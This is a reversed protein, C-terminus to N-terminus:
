EARSTPWNPAGDSMVRVVLSTWCIWISTTIATVIIIVAGSFRTIPMKKATRSVEPQRHDDHEGDGCRHEREARDHVPHHRRELRHLHADVADIEHQALLDRAHPHHPREHAFRLLGGAERLGVVFEGLGSEPGAAQHGGRERGHHQDDVDRADRHDPDAAVADAGALHLDPRHDGVEGIEDLDEEGDHHDREHHRHDGSRRDGGLADDLHEVRRRGHALGVVGDGLDGLPARELEAADAEGVRAGLAGHQGVQREADLGARRRRDDAAGAGALGREDVQHRAEGVDGLAAHQDVTDVHAVEVEIQQPALDAVHGLLREQEGAGHRRVQAVSAGVGAVAVQPLRELDRLCAAEHLRHGLADLARDGLAAAVHRAALSLAEADSPREHHLGLDVHEVVRERREVEGGICPESGRQLWVGGVGGHQDDGLPTDVITSASWIRTSSSPSIM